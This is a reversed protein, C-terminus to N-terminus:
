YPYKHEVSLNKIMGKFFATGTNSGLSYV